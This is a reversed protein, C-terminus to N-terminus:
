TLRLAAAPCTAVATRAAGIEDDPILTGSTPIGKPYGWRDAALRERFAALCVGHGQCRNWDITLTASM